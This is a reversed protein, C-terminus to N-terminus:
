LQCSLPMRDVMDERRFPCVLGVGSRFQKRRCQAAAVAEVDESIQMYACASKCDVHCVMSVRVLLVAEPQLLSCFLNLVACAHRLALYQCLFAIWLLM